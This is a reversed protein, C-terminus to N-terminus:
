VGGFIYSSASNRMGFDEILTRDVVSMRTLMKRFGSLLSRTYVRVKATGDTKELLTVEHGAKRLVYATALGLSLLIDTGDIM